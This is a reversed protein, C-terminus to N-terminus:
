HPRHCEPIGRIYLVESLVSGKFVLKRISLPTCGLAYCGSRLQQPHLCSITPSVLAFISLTTEIFFTRPRQQSRNAPPYSLQIHTVISKGITARWDIYAWLPRISAMEQEPLLWLRMMTIQVTGVIGLALLCSVTFRSVPKQVGKLRRNVFFAIPSVPQYTM